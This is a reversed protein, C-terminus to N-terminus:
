KGPAPPLRALVAAFGTDLRDSLRDTRESLGQIARDSRESVGQIQARVEANARDNRENQQRVEVQVGHIQGQLQTIRTNNTQQTPGTYEPWLCDVKTKNLMVQLVKEDLLITLDKFAAKLHRISLGAAGCIESSMAHILGNPIVLKGDLLPWNGALSYKTTYKAYESVSVVDAPKPGYKRVTFEFSQEVTENPYARQRLIWYALFCSGKFSWALRTTTAKTGTSHRQSFTAADVSQITARNAKLPFSTTAFPQKDPIFIDWADMYSFGEDFANPGVLASEDVGHNLLPVLIPANWALLDTPHPLVDEAQHHRPDLVVQGGAPPISDGNGGGNGNLPPNNNGSGAAGNGSNAATGNASGVTTVSKAVNLTLDNNAAGSTADATVNGNQLPDVNGALNGGAVGVPPLEEGNRSAGNLLPDANGTLNGGAVGAPPVDKGNSPAGNLLPDANVGGLPIEESDVVMEEGYDDDDDDPIAFYDDREELDRAPEQAPEQVPKPPPKQVLAVPPVLPPAQAIRQAAQQPPETLEARVADQEVLYQEVLYQERAPQAPERALNNNVTGQFSTRQAAATRVGNQEVEHDTPEKPAATVRGPAPKRYKEGAPAPANKQQSKASALTDPPAVTTSTAKREQINKAAGIDGVTVTVASGTTSAVVGLKQHPPVVQSAGALKPVIEGQVGGLLPVSPAAAPYGNEREPAHDSKSKKSLYLEGARGQVQDDADPGEVDSDQAAQQPSAVGVNGDGIKGTSGTVTSGGAKGQAEEPFTRTPAAAAAQPPAADPPEFVPAKPKKARPATKPDKGVLAPSNKTPAKKAPLVEPKEAIPDPPAPKKTKGDRGQATTAKSSRPKNPRNERARRESKKRSKPIRKKPTGAAIWTNPDQVPMNQLGFDLKLTRTDDIPNGHPDIIQGFDSRFGDLRKKPAPAAGPAFKAAVGPAFKAAVEPASTAGVYKTIIPSFEIGTIGLRSKKLPPVRAVEEEEEQDGDEVTADVGRKKVRRTKQDRTKHSAAMGTGTTGTTRGGQQSNENGVRGGQQSNEDTTTLSRARRTQQSNENGVRGGQQTNEDATTLSRARRTQQSNENGVRGSQQTNEDTVALPRARPNQRSNENGAGTLPSECNARERASAAPPVPEEHITPLYGVTYSLFPDGNFDKTMTVPLPTQATVASISKGTSQSLTLERRKHTPKFHEEKRQAFNKKKKMKGSRKSLDVQFQAPADAAVPAPNSPTTSADVPDSALAAPETAHAVPSQNEESDRSPSSRTNTYREYPTLENPVQAKEPWRM